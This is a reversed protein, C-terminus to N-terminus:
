IDFIVRARWAGGRRGLELGHYTVGKIQTRLPHREADYREGRAIAAIRFGGAEERTEQRSEERIEAEAGSLLVGESEFLYLVESLWEVLLLDLAAATAELRAERCPRVYGVDTIVDTMGRLAEVFLTERDAAEVEIAIDATHDVPRYSM